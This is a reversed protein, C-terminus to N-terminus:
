VGSPVRVRPRSRPREPQISRAGVELSQQKPGLTGMLALTILIGLLATAGVARVRSGGAVTLQPELPNLNVRVRNAAAVGQADQVRDLTARVDALALAMQRRAEAPTSGVAQIDLFPQDFRYQWQGGGNPQQVAYGDRVGEGALTVGDSVTQAAGDGGEVARAVVGAMDILSQSTNTYANLPVSAPRLVVVNVQSLYVPQAHSVWAVALGTLLVCCITLLKRQFAVTFLDWVTM